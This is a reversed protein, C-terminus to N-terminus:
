IRFIVRWYINVVEVHEGRITIINVSINFLIPFVPIFIRSSRSLYGSFIPFFNRFKRKCCVNFFDQIRRQGSKIGFSVLSSKLCSPTKFKCIRQSWHGLNPDTSCNKLVRPTLWKESKKERIKPNELVGQIHFNM